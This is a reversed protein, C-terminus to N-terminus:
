FRAVGGSMFPPHGGLVPHRVHPILVPSHIPVAALM